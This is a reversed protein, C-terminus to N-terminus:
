LHAAARQRPPAQKNEPTYTKRESPAGRNATEAETNGEQGVPPEQPLAAQMDVPRCRGQQTESGAPGRLRQSVTRWVPRQHVGALHLCDAGWIDATWESGEGQLACARTYLLRRQSDQRGTHESTPFSCSGKM